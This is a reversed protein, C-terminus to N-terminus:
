HQSRLSEVETEWSRALQRRMEQSYVPANPARPAKRREVFVANKRVRAGTVFAFATPALRMGLEHALMLALVTMFPTAAWYLQYPIYGAVKGYAWWSLMLLPAHAIFIFFSYKSHKVAWAGLRTDVFLSAAPWILFPALLVFQTRNAIKMNVMFFCLVLFGLLLPKAYKDLACLDWKQTACLGGVYFLIAMTDRLVVPGDFNNYFLLTVLIFGALPATRLLLGFLPALLMLMMMDRLFNLPYNIPSNTVGFMADLWTGADAKLLDYSMTFGLKAQAIYAVGLVILNFVLFPIALSHLKKKWLNLPAVHLASNFLLYGSILTLVPVTSRFLAHQCFAKVFDFWTGGMENLPVYQPVHLIVVGFIMLFRLM